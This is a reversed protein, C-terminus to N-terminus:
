KYCNDGFNNHDELTREHLFSVWKPEPQNVSVYNEFAEKDWVKSVGTFSFVQFALGV